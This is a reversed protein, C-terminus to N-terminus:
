LPNLVINFKDFILQISDTLCCLETEIIRTRFLDVVHGWKHSKNM